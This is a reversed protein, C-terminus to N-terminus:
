IFVFPAWYAVTRAHSVLRFPACVIECSVCVCAAFVCGVPQACRDQQTDEFGVQGWKMAAYKEKRKWYELFLTSWIGVFV